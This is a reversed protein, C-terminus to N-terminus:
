SFGCLETQALGLIQGASGDAGLAWRHLPAWRFPSKPHKLVKIYFNPNQQIKKQGPPRLRDVSYHLVKKNVISYKPAILDLNTSIM